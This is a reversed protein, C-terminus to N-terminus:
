IKEDVENLFEDFGIDLQHEKTTIISQGAELQYNFDYLNFRIMGESGAGAWGKDWFFPVKDLLKWQTKIFAKKILDSICDNFFSDTEEVNSYFETDLDVSKLEEKFEDRIKKIGLKFTHENDLLSTYEKIDLSNIRGLQLLYNLFEEHAVYILSDKYNKKVM